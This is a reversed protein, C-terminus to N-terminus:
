LRLGDSPRPLREGPHVCGPELAGEALRIRPRALLGLWGSANFVISSRGTHRMQFDSDSSSAPHELSCPTFFTVNRSSIAASRLIDPKPAIIEIANRSDHPILRTTPHTLIVRSVTLPIASYAQSAGCRFVIGPCVVEGGHLRTFAAPVTALM